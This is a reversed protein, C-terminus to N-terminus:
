YFLGAMDIKKVYSYSHLFVNLFNFDYLMLGSVVRQRFSVLRM